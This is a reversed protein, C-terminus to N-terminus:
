HRPDSSEAIEAAEPTDKEVILYCENERVVHEIPPNVHGSAVVFWRGNSRVEEYEDVTMQVKEACTGESCECVFSTLHTGPGGDVQGLKEIEENVSRFLAENQAARQEFSEM